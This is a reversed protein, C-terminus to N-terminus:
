WWVRRSDHDLLGYRHSQLAATMAKALIALCGIHAHGPNTLGGAALGPTKLGNDALQM